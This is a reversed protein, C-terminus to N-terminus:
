HERDPENKQYNQNAAALEQYQQETEGRQLRKRRSTKPDRERRSRRLRGSETETSDDERADDKEPQNVRKMAKIYQRKESQEKKRRCRQVRFKSLVSNRMKTITQQRQKLRDRGVEHRQKMKEAKELYRKRAYCNM